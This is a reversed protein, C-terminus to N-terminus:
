IAYKSRWSKTYETGTSPNYLIQKDDEELENYHDLVEVEQDETAEYRKLTPIVFSRQRAPTHNIIGVEAIQKSERQVFRVITMMYADQLAKAVMDAETQEARARQFKPM